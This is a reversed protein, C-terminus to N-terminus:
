GLATGILVGALIAALVLLTVLPAPTGSSAQEATSDRTAYFTVQDL